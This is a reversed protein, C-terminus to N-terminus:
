HSALWVEGTANASSHAVADADLERGRVAVEDGLLDRVGLDLLVAYANRRRFGRAILWGTQMRVVGADHMDCTPKLEEAVLTSSKLHGGARPEGLGVRKVYIGHRALPCHCPELVLGCGSM